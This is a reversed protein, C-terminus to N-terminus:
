LLYHAFQMLWYEEPGLPAIAFFERPRMQASPKIAAASQPKVLFKLSLKKGRKKKDVFRSAVNELMEEIMGNNCGLRRSMSMAVSFAEHNVIKRRQDLGINHSFIEHLFQKMKEIKKENTFWRDDYYSLLVSSYDVGRKEVGHASLIKNKIDHLNKEFVIEFLNNERLYRILLMFASKNNLQYAALIVDALDSNEVFFSPFNESNLVYKILRLSNNSKHQLLKKFIDYDDHSLVLPFGRLIAKILPDYYHDNDKILGSLEDHLYHLIKTKARDHSESLNTTQFLNRLIELIHHNNIKDDHLIEYKILQFDGHNLEFVQPSQEHEIISFIAFLKPFKVMYNRNRIIARLEEVMATIDKGIVRWFKQGLHNIRKIFIRM